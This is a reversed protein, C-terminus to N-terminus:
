WQPLTWVALVQLRRNMSSLGGKLPCQTPWEPLSDEQELTATLFSWGLGVSWHHGGPLVQVQIVLGLQEQIGSGYSRYSLLLKNNRNATEPYNTIYSHIFGSLEFLGLGASKVLYAIGRKSDNWCPHEKLASSSARLFFPFQSLFLANHFSIKFFSPLYFHLLFLPMGLLVLLICTDVFSYDRCSAQLFEKCKVFNQQQHSENM